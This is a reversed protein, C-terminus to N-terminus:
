KNCIQYYREIGRFIQLPDGRCRMNRFVPKQEIGAIPYTLHDPIIRQQRQAWGPDNQQQAFLISRCLIRETERWKQDTPSSPAYGPCGIVASRASFRAM